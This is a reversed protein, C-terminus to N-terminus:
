DLLWLPADIHRHRLSRSITQLDAAGDDQLEAVILRHPAELDFGLRRARVLQTPSPEGNAPLLEELLERRLRSEVALAAEHKLLELALVTAGHALANSELESVSREGYVTITGAEADHAVVPVILAIPEDPTPGLESGNPDVELEFPSVNTQELRLRRDTLRALERMVGQLGLEAVATEGLQRHIEFTAELLQAKDVLRRYLRGNQIAVSAQAALTAVFSGHRSGFRTPQRNGVYLAGVMTAGRMMPACIVSVIGERLLTDRVFDPTQHRYIRYDEVMLTCGRDLADGGMGSGIDVEMEDFDPDITGCSTAVRVSDHAEDYLAIWSTDTRLLQRAKLAITPLLHDLDIEEAQLDRAVSLLEELAYPPLEPALAAERAKSM